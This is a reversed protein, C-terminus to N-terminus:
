IMQPEHPIAFSFTAGHGENPEAWLHGRHREVITRSIFLGVGMGNSKTTYSAEFLREADRPDFGLGVDRVTVRVQGGQHRETRILLQRPRDEIERMAEASNALLNLVVQQLQVRDGKVHPLESDFETRLVVRYKQLETSLLAVAERIAENLDLSDSSVEKKGTLMRLRTILDHAREVDRITRRAAARAGDLNPPDTALARLCTNANTMIGALPQTVEHAISPALIGLTTLRAVHTLVANAQDLTQESLRRSTQDHVAGIYELQGAQDKIGHAMVRLYRVSGDPIPLRLEFDVDSVASRAKEIKKHFLPIDDPHVRTGILEFTLSREPDLDFLHYVQESAAIQATEPRWFFSGTASIGQVKALFAEIGKYADNDDTRHVTVAVISPFYEMHTLLLRTLAYSPMAEETSNAM